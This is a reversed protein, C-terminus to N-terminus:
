HNRETEAAVQEGTVKEAFPSSGIPM